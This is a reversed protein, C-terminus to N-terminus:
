IKLEDMAAIPGRDCWGPPVRPGQHPCITLELGRDEPNPPLDITNDGDQICYEEPCRYALSVFERLYRVRPHAFMQPREKMACLFSEFEQHLQEETDIKNKM